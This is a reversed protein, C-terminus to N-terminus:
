SETKMYDYSSLVNNITQKIQEMLEPQENRLTDILLKSMVDSDGVPGNFNIQPQFDVTVAVPPLATRPSNQNIATETQKVSDDNFLGYLWEAFEEGAVSGAVNGAVGGAATGAGPMLFSGLVGGGLGGLFGGAMGGIDGWANKSDGTATHYALSGGDIAYGLLPLRKAFKGATGGLGGLSPMKFPLSKAISPIADDAASWPIRKLMNKAIRGKGLALGGKLLAGAGLAGWILSSNDSSSNTLSQTLRNTADALGDFQGILDGTANSMQDTIALGQNAMKDLATSINKANESLDAKGLYKSPDQLADNLATIGKLGVDESFITGGTDEAITKFLGPQTRQLQILSAMYKAYSGQSVKGNKIDDRMGYAATKFQKRLAPDKIADLDGAKKGSGVLKKFEDPDSFRAQFTEKLSDGLKDFNWVGAQRGAVLMAQFQDATINDGLLPSYEAFTDLLDHNDDGTQKYINYIRNAADKTSIGFSKATNSIARIIEAPEAGGLIKQFQIASSTLDQTDQKNLGQHAAVATADFIESQSAGYNRILDSRFRRQQASQVEELSYNTRAALLRENREKNNGSWAAAATGMAAGAVGKINEISKLKKATRDAEHGQDKLAQSAKDVKNALDKELKALDRVDGGARSIARRSRNIISEQEKISKNTKKYEQNLRELAEKNDKEEKSLKQYEARNKASVSELRELEKQAKKFADVDGTIKQLGKFEKELKNAEAEIKKAQKVFGDEIGVFLELAYGSNKIGM